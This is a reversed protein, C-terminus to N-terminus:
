IRLRLNMKIYSDGLGSSGKRIIKYCFNPNNIKIKAKLSSKKNGFFYEKERSDILNLYGYSIKKLNWFVFKDAFFNLIKNM